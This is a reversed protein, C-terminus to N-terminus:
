SGALDVLNLRGAKIKTEGNKIEVEQEVRIVFICHSRSSDRNM